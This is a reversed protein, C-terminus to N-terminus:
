HFPKTLGVRISENPPIARAGTEPVTPFDSLQEPTFDLVALYEGLLAVAEVPVAIPRAGFGLFGGFRVVVDIGGAANRDISAVRGLVHQAPVPQLVQRGILDGVRVPQPFRRANKEAPTPTGTAAPTDALAATAAPTDALTATSLLGVLLLCAPSPSM